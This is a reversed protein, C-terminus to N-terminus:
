QAGGEILTLHPPLGAQRSGYWADWGGQEALFDNQQQIGQQRTFGRARAFAVETWFNLDPWLPDPTLGKFEVASVSLLEQGDEWADPDTYLDEWLSWAIAHAETFPIEIERSYARAWGAVDRKTTKWLETMEPSAAKKVAANIETLLPRYEYNWM